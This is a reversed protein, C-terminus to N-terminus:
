PKEQMNYQATMSLLSKKKIIKITRTAEAFRSIHEGIGTLCYMKGYGVIILGKTAENAIQGVISGGSYPFILVETPKCLCKDEVM